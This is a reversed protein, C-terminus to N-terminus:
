ENGGGRKTSGHAIVWQAARLDDANDAMLLAKVTGAKQGNVEPQFALMSTQTGPPLADILDRLADAARQESSSQDHRDLLRNARDVLKRYVHDRPLLEGLANACDRLTDILDDRM